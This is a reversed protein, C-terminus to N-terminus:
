RKVTPLDAPWRSPVSRRRWGAPGHRTGCRQKGMFRIRRRTVCATIPTDVYSRHVPALVYAGSTPLNEAGEIRLRTFVRTFGCLVTRFVSYAIRDFRTQGVFKSTTKSTTKITTM